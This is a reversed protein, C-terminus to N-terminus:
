ADLATVVAADVSKMKVVADRVLLLKAYRRLAHRVRHIAKALLCRLTIQETGVTMRLCLAGQYTPSLCGPIRPELGLSGALAPRATLGSLSLVLPAAIRAGITGVPVSHDQRVFSPSGRTLAFTHSLSSGPRTSVGPLSAKEPLLISPHLCRSLTRGM